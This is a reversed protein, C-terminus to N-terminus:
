LQSRLLASPGGLRFYATNHPPAAASSVAQNKKWMILGMMDLYCMITMVNVSTGFSLRDDGELNRIHSAIHGPFAFSTCLKTVKRGDPRTVETTTFGFKVITEFVNQFDRIPSHKNLIDWVERNESVDDVTANGSVLRFRTDTKNSDHEKNLWSYNGQLKVLLSILAAVHYPSNYKLYEGANERLQSECTFINTFKFTNNNATAALVLAVFANNAKPHFNVLDKTYNACEAAIHMSKFMEPDVIQNKRDENHSKAPKALAEAPIM